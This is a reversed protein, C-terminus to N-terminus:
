GDGAGPQSQQAIECAITEFEGAWDGAGAMQARGTAELRLWIRRYPVWLSVMVGVLLLVAGALALGFTLDRSAQWVSYETLRFTISTGLVEVAQGGAVQGSGLLTGDPAVAEVFLADPETGLAIRLSVGAEPLTVLQGQSSGLVAGFTGEPATIQVAPGYGQLHFRVGKVMLPHNIRVTQTIVTSTGTLVTLPVGARQGAVPQGARMELGTGHGVRHGEGPMLTLSGEQWGLVPRVAVALALLVAALHAVITGAQSWRGREAYLSASGTEGAEDIQPRFRHRRLTERAAALGQDLSGVEWKAHHAFGQYFAEPRRITPAERLSRWFRPVRQLTCIVTNLLLAGVLALFWPSSHAEFAGLAKLPTTALGYRLRVAELWPERASPEAPLQPLLSTLLLTLLLAVLLVIALRRSGLFSWLEHRWRVM